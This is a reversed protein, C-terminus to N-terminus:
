GRDEVKPVKKITVKVRQNSKKEENMEDEEDPVDTIRGLKSRPTPVMEPVGNKSSSRFTDFFGNSNESISPPARRQPSNNRSRTQFQRTWVPKLRTM